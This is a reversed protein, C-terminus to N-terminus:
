EEEISNMTEDVKDAWALAFAQMDGGAMNILDEFTIDGVSVDAYESPAGIVDLQMCHNLNVKTNYWDIPIPEVDGWITASTIKVRKKVEQGEIETVNFIMGDEKVIM